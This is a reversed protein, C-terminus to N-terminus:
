SDRGVLWDISVSFYDALKILIEGTPIRGVCIRSITANSVNLDKALQRQSLDNCVLLEVLNVGIVNDIASQTIM